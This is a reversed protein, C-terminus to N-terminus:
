RSISQNPSSSASALSNRALAEPERSRGPAAMLALGLLTLPLGLPILWLTFLMATGFLLMALGIGQQVLQGLSQVFSPTWPFQEWTPHQMVSQHRSHELQITAM